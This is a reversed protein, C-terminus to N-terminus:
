HFMHVGLFRRLKLVVIKVDMHGGSGNRFVPGGAPIVRVVARAERRVPLDTLGSYAMVPSTERVPRTMGMAAQGFFEHGCLAGAHFRDEYRFFILFVKLFHCFFDSLFQRDKRHLFDGVHQFFYQLLRM